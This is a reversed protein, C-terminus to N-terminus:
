TGSWAIELWLSVSSKYRGIWHFSNSTFVRDASASNRINGLSM